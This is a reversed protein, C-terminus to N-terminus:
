IRLEKESIAVNGFNQMQTNMKGVHENEMLYFWNIVDMSHVDGTYFRRMGWDETLLLAGKAAIFASDMNNVFLQPTGQPYTMLLKEEVIQIDCHADVWQLMGNVINWLASHTKDWTDDRMEDYVAQSIIEPTGIEEQTLAAQLMRQLSIPIIFKREYSFNFKRSLYYMVILSSLDLVVDDEKIAEGDSSIYQYYSLPLRYIGFRKDFITDLMSAVPENEKIFVCLPLKARRYSLLNKARSTSIAKTDGVLSQIAALPDGKWKEDTITVSRISRSMNQFIDLHVDKNMKFYKNHIEVIEINIDEGIRLIINDGKKKGVLDEYVSGPTIEIEDNTEGRKLEVWDGTEVEDKPAYIINAFQRNMSLEFFFDKLKQNRTRIIRDYLYEVAFDYDGVSMYISVVTAIAEPSMLELKQVYSQRSILGQSDGMVRLARLHRCLYSIEKPHKAMLLKTIKSVAKCDYIAEAMQLEKILFADEYIGKKRIDHLLHYLAIAYKNDLSYYEVLLYTRLDVVDPNACKHLLEIAKDLGLEKKYIISLFPYLTPCFNPEEEQLRKIDVKQGAKYLIFQDFLFKSLADPIVMGAAYQKVDEYVLNFAQIYNPLIHNPIDMKGETVDKLVAALETTSQTRIAIALRINLISSMTDDGYEKLLKLADSYREQDMLMIAYGLYYIEKLHVNGKEREMVELRSEEQDKFYGTLNELFVTDPMMNYLETKELLALYTHTMTYLNEAEKNWMQRVNPHIEMRQAFRSAAISMEYVWVPFNDCTLETLGKYQYTWIDIGLQNDQDKCGLIIANSIAMPKNINDPIAAYTANINDTSTLQPVYIWYSNPNLQQLEDTYRKIDEDKHKVCSTYIMGITLQEKLRIDLNELGQALRYAEEYHSTSKKDKIFRACDGMTCQVAALVANDPNPAQKLTNYIDELHGYANKVKLAKIDSDFTPLIAKITASNSGELIAIIKKVGDKTEDTNALIKKETPTEFKSKWLYIIVIAGIVLITVASLWISVSDIQFEFFISWFNAGKSASIGATVVPIGWAGIEFVTVIGRIGWIAVKAPTGVLYYKIAAGSIVNWVGEWKSYEASDGKRKHYYMWGSVILLIIAILTM